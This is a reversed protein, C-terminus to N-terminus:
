STWFIIWYYYGIIIIEIFTAIIIIIIHCYNWTDIELQITLKESSCFSKCQFGIEQLQTQFEFKVELSNVLRM